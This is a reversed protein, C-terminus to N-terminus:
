ALDGKAKPQCVMDWSALSQCKEEGDVVKRWLCHRRARDCHEFIKIPIKLTCMAFTLLPTIAANVYTLRGGYTLWIATSTLRREISTVLPMLDEVTPRTTGMPLGLYTFPMTGVQCDLIAALSATEEDFINIPTLQSKSFNIKLGTSRAYATLIEQMTRLQDECAPMVVITDDTYQIIPYDESTPQTIPAHLLGGECTKNVVNQLLDGVSVFLLPSLPDGQRVGRKCHFETGPVGNLLVASTGSGLVSRTMNLWREDFGKLKLIELIAHHEVTDFAKEFDVKLVM